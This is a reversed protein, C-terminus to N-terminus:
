AVIGGYLPRYDAVVGNYEHRVKYTIQDNTFVTGVTEADQVLMEPLQKGDLFGVVVGEADLKDGVVYWNNQDTGLYYNPVVIPEVAKYVPNTENNGHSSASITNPKYESNVLLKALSRLEHPVVLYKANINLPESSDDEAQNAVATIAADLTTYSLASTTTNNGHNTADYITYGDSMTDQNIAGSSSQDSSGILLSFVFISLTRNAANAMRRPFVRISRLDDNKIMERSVKFLNGRKTVTYSEVTESPTSFETYSGNESVTSLNAFGGVRILDQQKFNDVNDITVIKNWSEKANLRSYERQMRREMSTGLMNSFDSTAAAETLRSSEKIGRVETDGTVKVYLEKIGNAQVVDQYSEKLDADNKIDPDLLMDMAKQVKDVPADGVEIKVSEKMEEKRGAELKSLVDKELQIAETLEKEEFVKGTFQKKVKEAVPEPLKAETLAEKLTMECIKKQFFDFKKIYTDDISEKVTEKKSEKVEEKDEIKVTEKEDDDKKEDEKVEETKTEEVKDEVKVEDESEKAKKTPMVKKMAEVIEDNSMKDIAEKAVGILGPNAKIAAILKDMTINEKNNKYSAVLRLFKGGAAPHSVVDVSNVALIKNVMKGNRGEIRALSLDGQADISFGLLDNKGESFSNMATEKLHNDTIHLSATLCKKNNVEEFRVDDIWGALNKEFGINEVGNPLHDFEGAFNFTYIRAGEFLSASEQLVEPSYYINNKSWGSDIVVIRWKKGNPGSELLHLTSNTQYGTDQYILEAL